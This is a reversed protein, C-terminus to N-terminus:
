PGGKAPRSETPPSEPNPPASAGHATARARWREIFHEWKLVSEAPLLPEYLKGGRTRFWLRHRNEVNATALETLPICLGGGELRVEEPTLVLRGEGVKVPEEGSEDLVSCPASRLLAGDTLAADRWGEQDFRARMADVLDALRREGGNGILTSDTTVRWRERCATCRVEDGQEALAEVRGCAPCAFLVNSIGQALRIGRLPWHPGEADDVRLRRQLDALIAPGGQSKEYKVPPDVVVHVRGRRPLPAWRPWSRYGNYIRMTVVPVGMLLVLKEIGPILPLPRGDWTREGEPFIGIAAGSDVWAKMLRVAKSDPMNKKKPSMGFALILRGALGQALAETGMVVVARNAVINMSIADPFQVHNGLMLLPGERPVNESGEWTLPVLRKMLAAIAPRYRTHRAEVLAVSEPTPPLPTNSTRSM